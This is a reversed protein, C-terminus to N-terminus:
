IRRKFEEKIFKTHLPKNAAEYEEYAKQYEETQQPTPKTVFDRIKGPLSIYEVEGEPTYTIIAYPEITQEICNNTNFWRQKIKGDDYFAMGGNLADNTSILKGNKYTNATVDLPTFQSDYKCIKSWTYPTQLIEQSLLFSEEIYNKGTGRTYVKTYEGEKTAETILGNKYTIVTTKGDKGKETITGTFDKNRKFNSSFSTYKYNSSIGNIKM